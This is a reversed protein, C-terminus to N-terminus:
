DRKNEKDREMHMGILLCIAGVALVMLLAGPLSITATM